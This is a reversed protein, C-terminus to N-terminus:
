AGGTTTANAQEPIRDLALSLQESAVIGLQQVDGKWLGNRTIVGLFEEVDHHRMALVTAGEDDQGVSCHSLEHDVLAIRQNDDLDRWTDHSIEIVFYPFPEAFSGQHQEPHSLWASLGTLKRARGLVSRGRSTPAKAIFVYEIHANVLEQHQTVRTILQRAIEAVEPARRYEAM